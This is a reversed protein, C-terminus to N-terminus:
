RLIGLRSRGHGVFDDYLYARRYRDTGFATCTRAIMFNALGVVPSPTERLLIPITARPARM